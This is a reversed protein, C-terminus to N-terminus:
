LSLVCINFTTGAYRYPRTQFGVTETLVFNEHCQGKLNFKFLNFTACPHLQKRFTEFKQQLSCFYRYRVLHFMKTKLYTRITLNKKKKKEASCLSTQFAIHGSHRSGQGPEVAQHDLPQGAGGAGEEPLLQVNATNGILSFIKLLFLMNHVM